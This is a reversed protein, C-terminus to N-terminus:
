PKQSRIAAALMYRWAKKADQRMGNVQVKDWSDPWVSAEQFSAMGMAGQEIMAETPKEPVLVYGPPIPATHIYLPECEKCGKARSVTGRCLWAVPKQEKLMEDRIRAAFMQVVEEPWELYMEEETAIRQVMQEFSEM